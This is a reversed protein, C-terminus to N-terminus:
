TDDAVMKFIQTRFFIRGTLYDCLAASESAYGIVREGALEINGADPALLGMLMKFLTSKGAGNPGLLGCLTGNGVSFSVEQVAHVQGFSKKLNHIAIM